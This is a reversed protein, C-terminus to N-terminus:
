FRYKNIQKGFLEIYESYSMSMKESEYSELKIKDLIKKHDGYYGAKRILSKITMGQDWGQQLAVEPLYTGSYNRGDVEFEINIGNKGVEFDEWNKRKQFNFLISLNATLDPLEKENIPAFRNDEFASIKAYQGLNESMPRPQFTGICGRLDKSKGIYWTVFLPATFDELDSPYSVTKQGSLKAVITDFIFKLHNQIICPKQM